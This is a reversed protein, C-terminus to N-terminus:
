GRRSLLAFKLYSGEPHGIAVPHDPPEGSSWRWSWDATPALGDIVAARWDATSLRATCSSTALLGDPAVRTGHHRHLKRYAAGAAGESAKDHALSPPDLVVLSSPSRGTWGFADAVEFGHRDPDIGNLRFNERADDIADPAIDVTIVRSAGGLAAAVSFGGTYAFLNVVSRGRSWRRVLARHERQDLFMGTKQGVEPRVLLKAGHEEIVVVSPVPPGALVEGGTRGDVREVGYRRYVTECWPLAAIARVIPDLHREWAGAYSRLVAIPGYRDVVLGDLGDGAGAVIRYADTGGDVLDRRLTDARTIRDRIVQDIGDRPGQGLVRVAIPGDDALGWGVRRGQGDYLDVVTGSPVRAPEERYIWPHGSQVRRTAARSLRFRPM